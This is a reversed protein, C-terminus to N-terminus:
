WDTPIHDPVSFGVPLEADEPIWGFAKVSMGTKDCWVVHGTIRELVFQGALEDIVIESIQEHTINEDPPLAANIDTGGAEDQTVVTVMRFAVSPHANARVVGEILCKDFSELWAEQFVSLIYEDM